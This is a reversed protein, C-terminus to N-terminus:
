TNAQFKPQLVCGHCSQVMSQFQHFMFHFKFYIMISKLRPPFKQLHVKVTLTMCIGLNITFAGTTMASCVILMTPVITGAMLFM